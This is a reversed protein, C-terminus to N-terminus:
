FLGMFCSAQIQINTYKYLKVNAEIHINKFILRLSTLCSTRPCVAPLPLSLGQVEPELNGSNKRNSQLVNWESNIMQHWENSWIEYYM